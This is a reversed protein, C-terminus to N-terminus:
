SQVFFRTVFFHFFVFENAIIISKLKIVDLDEDYIHYLYDGEKDYVVSRYRGEVFRINVIVVEDIIYEYFVVSLNEVGRKSWM